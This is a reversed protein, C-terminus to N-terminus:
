KEEKEWRGFKKNCARIYGKDILRKHMAYAAVVDRLELYEDERKMDEKTKEEIPIELLETFLTDYEVYIEEITQGQKLKKDITEYIKTRNM